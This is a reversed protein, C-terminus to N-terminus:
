VFFRLVESTRCLATSTPRYRLHASFLPAAPTTLLGRMRLHATPSCLGEQLVRSITRGIPNPSSSQNFVYPGLRYASAQASIRSTAGRTQRCCRTAGIIYISERPSPQHGVTSYHAMFFPLRIKDCFKM